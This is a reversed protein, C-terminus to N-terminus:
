CLTTGLVAWRRGDSHLRRLVIVLAPDASPTGLLVTGEVRRTETPSRDSLNMLVAELLPQRMRVFLYTLEAM